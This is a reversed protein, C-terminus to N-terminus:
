EAASSGKASAAMKALEDSSLLATEEKPPINEVPLDEYTCLNPPFMGFHIGKSTPVLNGAKNRYYIRIGFHM